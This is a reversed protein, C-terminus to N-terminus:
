LMIRRPKMDRFLDVIVNAPIDIDRHISALALGSLRDTNMTTRLYTKLRRLTSFSRESTANSIPLVAYERLLTVINPLYLHRARAICEVVSLSEEERMERLWVRIESKVTRLDGNLDIELSEAVLCLRELSGERVFQPLLEQLALRPLPTDFRTKFQELLHDLFPVFITRRFYEEASDAPINARHQQRVVRRPIELEVGLGEAMIRAEGFIGRFETEVSDRMESLHKTVSNVRYMADGVHTHPDQLAKSLPLTLAMINHAVTIAVIFTPAEMASLLARAIASAKADSSEIAHQLVQIVYPQLEIFVNVANHREVWRTSCYQLLRRRRHGVIAVDNSESADDSVAAADITAKLDQARKTSGVIFETVAALTGFANKLELVKCARSLALNLRHNCCHVYVALPQLRSLHAQCGNFKGQMAAAGDYAQGRCQFIDLDMEKLKSLLLNALGQGTTESAELFGVFDESIIGDKDVSRIVVSAQEVHGVDTTEDLMVAFIGSAKIKTKLQESIHTSICHVIENQM